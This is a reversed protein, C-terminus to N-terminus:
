GRSRSWTSPRAPSPTGTCTTSAHVGPVGQRDGQAEDADLERAYRAYYDDVKTDTHRPHSWAATSTDVPLRQQRDDAAVPSGRRVHGVARGPPDHEDLHGQRRAPHERDRRDAGDAGQHRHRHRQVRAERHQDDARLDAAEAPRLRGRGAAGEGQGPRLPVHPQRGGHGAHGPPAMGVWPTAQGKFAIKVIEKRDIGYCGVAKRVRLDGFIPHPAREKSMPKGDKPVTVKMAALM